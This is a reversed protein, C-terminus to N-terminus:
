VIFKSFLEYIGASFASFVLLVIVLATMFRLKHVLRFGFSALILAWVVTAGELFTLPGYVFPKIQMPSPNVSFLVLGLSALEIPLIFVVSIVLPALAWGFVAYTNRWGARGGAFHLITHLVGAMSVGLPVSIVLGMVVGLLLLHILNDFQEGANRIWLLGFSYAIGLFVTLFLVYNKHEAISIKKFAKAPSEIIMWWTSFFDVNPVRDQVYGGCKGCVITLEDNQYGCVPCTIM